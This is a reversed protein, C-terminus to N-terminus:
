AEAASEGGGPEDASQPYDQDTDEDMDTDLEELRERIAHAVGQIGAVQQHALGLLGTWAAAPPSTM